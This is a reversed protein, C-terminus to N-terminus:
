GCAASAPFRTLTQRLPNWVHMESCNPCSVLGSRRPLAAAAMMFHRRTAPCRLTTQTEAAILRGEAVPGIEDYSARSHGYTHM